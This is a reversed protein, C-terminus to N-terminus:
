QKVMGKVKKRFSLLAVIEGRYSDPSRGEFAEYGDKCTKKLLKRATYLKRSIFRLLEQSM